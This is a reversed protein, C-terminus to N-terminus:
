GRARRARASTMSGCIGFTDAQPKFFFYDGYMGFHPPDTTFLGGGLEHCQTVGVGRKVAIPDFEGLHDAANDNAFLVSRWSYKVFSGRKRSRDGSAMALADAITPSIRGSKDTLDWQGKDSKTPMEVAVLLGAGDGAWKLHYGDEAQELYGDITPGVGNRGRLDIGITQGLPLLWNEDISTRLALRRATLDAGGGGPPVAAIAAAPPLREGCRHTTTATHPWCGLQWLRQRRSVFAGWETEDWKTGERISHGSM